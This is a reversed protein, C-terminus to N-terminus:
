DKTDQKDAKRLSLVCDSGTHQQQRLWQVVAERDFRVCMGLAFWPLNRNARLYDIQRPSVKLLAALEKKNMYEEM